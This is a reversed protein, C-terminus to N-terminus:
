PGATANDEEVVFDAEENDYTRYAYEEKYKERNEKIRKRIWNREEEFETRIRSMIPEGIPSKNQDLQFQARERKEEIELYAIFTEVREFRAETREIKKEDFDPLYNVDYVSQRLTKELQGDNLPTDQLVLDLYAFTEILYRYFFWGASTVRVHSAGDVNETSRTNPEVLHKSVLRNLTVILDETNDFVTEFEVFLKSIEIYGRGERTTEGRHEM